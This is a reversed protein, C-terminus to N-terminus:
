IIMDLIQFVLSLIFKTLMLNNYRYEFTVYYSDPQMFLYNLETRNGMFFDNEIELKFLISGSM